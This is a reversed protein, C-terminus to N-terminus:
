RAAVLQRLETALEDPTAFGDIRVWRDGTGARLFTVPTHDMKDGRASEFARQATRSAEVTGTYFHWRAGAHFKKAYELLRAPTDYEPDLSISVLHVKEDREGLKEQLQAFAQSMVPCITPCSTFVFNLAVPLGDNLEAPLSVTKGDDRVLTVDPVKLETSSRTARKLAQPEEALAHRPAAFLSVVLTLAAFLRKASEVEIPSRLAHM